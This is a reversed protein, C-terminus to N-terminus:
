VGSRVRVAKCSALSHLTCFSASGAECDWISEQRGGGSALVALLSCFLFFDNLYELDPM